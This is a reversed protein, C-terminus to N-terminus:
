GAHPTPVPTAAHCANYIDLILCPTPKGKPTKCGDKKSKVEACPKAATASDAPWMYYQNTAASGPDNAGCDCNMAGDPMQRCKAPWSVKPPWETSYSCQYSEMSPLPVTTDCPRDICPGHKLIAARAAAIKSAQLARAQRHYHVVVLTGGLYLLGFVILVAWYVWAIAKM